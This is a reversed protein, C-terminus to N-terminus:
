ASSDSAMLKHREELAEDFTMNMLLVRCLDGYSLPKIFADDHLDKGIAKWYEWGKKGSRGERLSKSIAKALSRRVNVDQRPCVLGAPIPQRFAVDACKWKSHGPQGESYKRLAGVISRDVVAIRNESDGQSTLWSWLAGISTRLALRRPNLSRFGDLKLIELMEVSAATDGLFAIPLDLQNSTGGQSKWTEQLSSLFHRFDDFRRDVSSVSGAFDWNEHYFVTFGELTGIQLVDVFRSRECTLFYPEGVFNVVGHRVLLWLLDWSESVLSIAQLIDKNGENPEQKENVQKEVSKTLKEMVLKVWESYSSGITSRLLEAGSSARRSGGTSGYRVTSMQSGKSSVSSVDENCRDMLGHTETGDSLLHLLDCYEQQDSPVEIKLTRILRYYDRLVISEYPTFRGDVRIEEQLELCPESHLIASDLLLGKEKDALKRRMDHLSNKFPRILNTGMPVRSIVPLLRFGGDDRKSAAELVSPVIHRLGRLNENNQLFLFIAVDALYNLAIGGVDTIGTRSDILLFDPKPDLRFQIENCLDRLIRYALPREEDDTETLLYAWDLAALMSCYESTPANGAPMLRISGADQSREAGPEKSSNKMEINLFCSDFSSPPLLRQGETASDTDDQRKQSGTEQEQKKSEDTKRKWLYQENLLHSLACDRNDSKVGFKEALGPAELDLDVMVVHLGANALLRAVNCLLLTRGTGGKYSYFTITKM